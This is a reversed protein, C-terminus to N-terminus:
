ILQISLGSTLDRPQKKLLLEHIARLVPLSQAIESIVRASEHSPTNWLLGVLADPTNYDDINRGLDEFSSPHIMDKPEGPLLALFKRLDQESLPTKLYEIVDFEVNDARLIDM